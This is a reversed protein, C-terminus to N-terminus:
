PGCIAHGGARLLSLFVSVCLLRWERVAGGAERQSSVCCWCCPAARMSACRRCASGSRASGASPACATRSGRDTRRRGTCWCSIAPTRWVSCTTAPARAAATRRDCPPLTSSSRGCTSCSSPAWRSSPPRLPRPPPPRRNIRSSSTTTITAPARHRHRRHAM